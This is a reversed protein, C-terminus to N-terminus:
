VYEGGIDICKQWRAPLKQIAVAFWKKPTTVFEGGVVPESPQGSSTGSLWCFITHQPLISIAPVIVSTCLCQHLIRRLYAANLIVLSFKLSCFFHFQFFIGSFTAAGSFNDKPASACTWLHSLIERGTCSFLKFNHCYTSSSNGKVHM